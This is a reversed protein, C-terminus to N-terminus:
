IEVELNFKSPAVSQPHSNDKHYHIKVSELRFSGGLFHSIIIFMSLACAALEIVAIGLNPEQFTIKNGDIFTVFWWCMMAMSALAFGLAFVLTLSKHTM